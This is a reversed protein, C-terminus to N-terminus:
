FLTDLQPVQSFTQGALKTHLWPDQALEQGEPVASQPPIQISVWPSM